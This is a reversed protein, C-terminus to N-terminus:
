KGANRNQEITPDREDQMGSFIQEFHILSRLIDANKFIAMFDYGM